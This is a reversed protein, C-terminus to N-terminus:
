GGAKLPGPGDVGTSQTLEFLYVTKRSVRRIFLPMASGLTKLNNKQKSWRHSERDVEHLLIRRGPRGISVRWHHNPVNVRAYLFRQRAIEARRIIQQLRDVALTRKDGTQGLQAGGAASLKRGIIELEQQRACTTGGGNEIQPLLCM